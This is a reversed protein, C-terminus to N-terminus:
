FKFQTGVIFVSGKNRPTATGVTKARPDLMTVEAYPLMGAALKYDVGVSVAKLTNHVNTGKLDSEFYNVSAGIPGQVYGVGASWYKADKGIYSFLPADSVNAAFNKKSMVGYSGGFTLNAYELSGGFAYSQTNKTNKINAIKHNVKGTEGTASLSLTMQDFQQTYNLGASFLDKINLSSAADNYGVYKNDERTNNGRNTADPTYSVGFQFGSMRPSYYTIKRTDEDSWKNLYDVFNDGSTLFPADAYDTDLSKYGFNYYKYWSGNVGGTARAFNSSDVKMTKGASHNSGLEIRGAESEVFLYSRDLNDSANKRSKDVTTKLGVVAGYKFGADAQGEAKAYIRATNKFIVDKQHTSLDQKYDKKQSRFGSEFNAVGGLSFNPNLPADAFAVGATLSIITSCLLFKKM